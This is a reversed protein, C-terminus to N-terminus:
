KLMLYTAQERFWSRHAIKRINLLKFHFKCSGLRNKCGCPCSRKNALRKRMGLLKFAEIVSSRNDLGLLDAYDSILGEPGHELEGFPLDGGHKLKRSVAYLYPVLCRDAFCPLTSNDVIAMKLRLPSGLCFSGDDNVHYKKQDPHGPGPIKRGIEKVVPLEHPFQDPIQIELRYSDSLEGSEPHNGYFAFTGTLRIQVHSSPRLKMGPYDSMFDELKWREPALM